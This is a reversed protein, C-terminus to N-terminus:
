SKEFLKSLKRYYRRSAIIEAGSALIIKARGGFVAQMERIRELNVSGSRHVRAFKSPDLQLELSSITERLLYTAKEFHLRVYNGYAEIWEIEGTKFFYVRGGKKVLVRELYGTGAKFFEGTEETQNQEAAATQIQAKARAVAKKLREEDFPKLLYDLAAAEFAKVAYRDFATLFVVVPTEEPALEALVEFGDKGPMQVDLFVLAPLKEKILSVAEIGDGAEGVIEMEADDALLRRVRERAFPEDDIIAARIKPM